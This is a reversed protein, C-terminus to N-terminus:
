MFDEDFDNPEGVEEVKEVKYRLIGGIGGFGQVFQTGVSTCNSVIRLDFGTQASLWEVLDLEEWIIVVKVAGLEIMYRLEKEGFCYNGDTKIENMFEEILAKERNLKENVIVGSSLEMAQQFGNEGGYSVDIISIVLAKIRPDLIESEFLVQKFEASGAFVLGKLTKILPLYIRNASEAVKRVYNHRKEMRLRGFRVSSQGGARHKKPLDVSEKYLTQKHSGSLTGFLFGNGDIVVYGYTEEDSLLELLHETHFQKDCLYLSKNIPKMLEVMHVETETAFLAMGNIPPRSFTSLLYVIKTIAGLVSQRNVRSKINIATGEENRLLQIVGSIQEGANVYVTICSTASGKIGNLEKILKKLKWREIEM